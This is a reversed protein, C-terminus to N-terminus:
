DDIDVGAAECALAATRYADKIEKRSPPRPLM